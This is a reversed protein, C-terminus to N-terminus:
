GPPPGQKIPADKSNKEKMMVHSNGHIGLEVLRIWTPKVGAQQDERQAVMRALADASQLSGGRHRTLDAVAAALAMRKAIEADGIRVEALGAACDFNQAFGQNDELGDLARVGVLRARRNRSQLL